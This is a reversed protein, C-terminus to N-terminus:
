ALHYLRQIGAAKAVRYLSKNRNSKRDKSYVEM